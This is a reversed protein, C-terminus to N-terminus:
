TIRLAVLAVDDTPSIDPGTLREVVTRPSADGPLEATLRVLEALGLDLDPASSYADVLGDTFFILMAGSPLEITTDAPRADGDRRLRAVGIMPGQAEDVLRITGDPLRLIPPPHGANALRLTAGGAHLHLTGLLGTALIDLGGSYALLEDVAALVDGPVSGPWTYARVITSLKGMRAASDYNHGMVDGVVVGVGDDRLTFVDYWDGGVAAEDASPVYRAAVEIGEIRPLRPLLSRQLTAAAARQRSYLQTNELMLGARVALDRLLSLETEGFPPRSDDAILAVCGLIGSRALLPVAVVSRTGLKRNLTTREDPAAGSVTSPAADYDPILVQSAEGSLVRYVPSSSQLQDPVLDRLEAVAAAIAPDTAAREHRVTPTTIRQADDLTYVSAWTGVRPILVDCLLEVIQQPQQSLAMRSTFDALLALRDAALAVQSLAEDRSRQAEVRATVDAQVGVFHTITGARDRVPSVSLENWFPTGDRRYNLLTTTLPQGAALSRGMDAVVRPDTDPGQLLRCNRGLVEDAEYGTTTTFAPNVWVIPNDPQAPDTITFSVRTALVARDRLTVASEQVGAILHANRAPLFVVLALRSMPEPAGELPLGLVWLVERSGTVSTARRATVAEGTVPEGQAVRLLPEVPAVPDDEAAPPLGEGTVTQLGAAVSWEDVGVPLATDPVLETALDNAFTVERRELDVVLVAASAEHVVPPLLVTAFGPGTDAPLRGGKPDGPGPRPEPRAIV